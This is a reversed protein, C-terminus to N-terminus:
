VIPIGFRELKMYVLSAKEPLLAGVIRGGDLPPIPILNFIMLGFNAFIGSVAMQGFVGLTELQAGFARAYGLPIFLAAWLFIMLFNSFPGALAVLFTGLRKYKLREFNVPVPKAWGFLFRSGAAVMALPVLITGVLDIHRLPNLTLRNADRATPDGLKLAVWGHAVEHGIISTMIPILYILINAIVETDM